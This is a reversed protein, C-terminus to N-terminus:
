RGSKAIVKANLIRDLKPYKGLFRVEDELMLQLDSMTSDSYGDYFAELVDMGVTVKGFAPFGVVDLYNITDLRSNDRLNIFIDGSRSNKGGRAFSLTGKTNSQRVPEDPIPAKEWGAVEQANHGGFQVVFNPHTRYALSGDFYGSKVLSYFRDAAEPSAQRVVKLEFPGKSTDFRVEFHEPAVRNKFPQSACGLLVVTLVGYALRKM